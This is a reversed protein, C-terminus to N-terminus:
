MLDIYQNIQTKIHQMAICYPEWFILVPTGVTGWRAMLRRYVGGVWEFKAGATFMVGEWAPDAPNDSPVREVIAATTSPSPAITAITTTAQTTIVMPTASPAGAPVSSAKGGCGCAIVAVMAILAVLVKPSRSMRAEEARAATVVAM